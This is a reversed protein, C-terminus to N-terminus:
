VSLLGLWGPAGSSTRLVPSWGKIAICNVLFAAITIDMTGALATQTEHKGLLLDVQLM